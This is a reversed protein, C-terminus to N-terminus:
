QLKALERRAILMRLVESTGEGITLLRADRWHRHIEDTTYGYGGHIQIASDCVRLSMETSFVKAQSAESSYDGGSEKIRSAYFYLLRAADMETKMDAIKERILQFESITKGFAKRQRSYALSKEYAIRAIGVNLAAVVIRASHLIEKAYDAGKGEEGVLNEEPIRCDSFIVESTRSGRMGLKKLDEGFSLGPSPAEVIFCSPGKKTKAFVLYLDAEGGNTIFMKSGNISYGGAEKQATTAMTGADSGSAPETLTFSALKDGSLIKPLYARKQADTAFRSLGEAVANHIEVSLCTSAEATGLMEVATAYVSFPLGLGGYEEPFAIQCMGQKLLARRPKAMKVEGTDIKPSIPLLEKEMFAGLSTLVESYEQHHDPYFTEMLRRHEASYIAM